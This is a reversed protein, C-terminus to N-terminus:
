AKNITLSLNGKGTTTNHVDEVDHADIGVRAKYDIHTIPNHTVQLLVQGEVILFSYKKVEQHEKFLYKGKVFNIENFLGLIQRQMVPNKDQLDPM